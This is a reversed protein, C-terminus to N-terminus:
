LFVNSTKAEKNKSNAFQDHFGNEESPNQAIDTDLSQDKTVLDNEREPFIVEGNKLVQNMAQGSANKLVGRAIDASEKIPQKPLHRLILGEYILDNNNARKWRQNAEEHLIGLNPRSDTTTVLNGTQVQLLSGQYNNRLELKAEDSIHTSKDSQVELDKIQLLAGLTNNLEVTSQHGHGKTAETKGQVFNRERVDVNNANVQQICPSLSFCKRKKKQLARKTHAIVSSTWKTFRLSWNKKIVTHAMAQDTSQVDTPHFRMDNTFEDSDSRRILCSFRQVKSPKTKQGAASPSYSGVFLGKM